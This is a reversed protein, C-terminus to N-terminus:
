GLDLLLLRKGVLHLLLIMRLDLPTCLQGLSAAQPLTFPKPGLYPPPLLFGVEESHDSSELQQMNGIYNGTGLTDLVRFRM